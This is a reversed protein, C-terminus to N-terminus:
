LTMGPSLRYLTQIQTVFLLYASGLPVTIKTGFVLHLFMVPNMRLMTASQLKPVYGGSRILMLMVADILAVVSREPPVSTCGTLSRPLPLCVVPTLVSRLPFTPLTLRLGRFTFLPVDMTFMPTLPAVSRGDVTLMVIPIM